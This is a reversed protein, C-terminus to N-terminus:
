RLSDTGFEVLWREPIPGLDKGTKKSLDAIIQRIMESRFQEVMLDLDSGRIQKTGTPYYEVIYKLCDVSEDPEAKLARDRMDVFVAMQERAFEARVLLMAHRAGIIAALATTALLIGVVNHKWLNTM